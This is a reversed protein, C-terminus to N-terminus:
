VLMQRQLFEFLFAPDNSAGFTVTPVVFNKNCPHIREAEAQIEIRQHLTVDDGTKMIRCVRVKGEIFEIAAEAVLAEDDIRALERLHVRKADARDATNELAVDAATKKLTNSEGTVSSEDCRIDHGEALIADVPVIDGAELLLVDGVLIEYISLLIPRGGRIVKVERDEKQIRDSVHM